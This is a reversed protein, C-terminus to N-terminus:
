SSGKKKKEKKKKKKKKKKKNKEKKERQSPMDNGTSKWPLLITCKKGKSAGMSKETKRIQGKQFASGKKFYLVVVKDYNKSRQNLGSKKCNGKLIPLGVLKYTFKEWADFRSSQNM